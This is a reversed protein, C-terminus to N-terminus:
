TNPAECLVACDMIIITIGECGGSHLRKQFEEAREILRLRMTASHVALRVMHPGLKLVPPHPFSNVTLFSVLSLTSTEMGRKEETGGRGRRAVRSLREEEGGRGKASEGRNGGREREEGRKGKNRRNEGWV